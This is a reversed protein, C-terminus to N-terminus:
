VPCTFDQLLRPRAQVLMLLVSSLMMTSQHNNIPSTHARFIARATGTSDSQGQQEWKLLLADKKAENENVIIKGMEAARQEIACLTLTNYLILLTLTYYLVYTGAATPPRHQHQRDKDVSPVRHDVAATQPRHVVLCSDGKFLYSSSHVGRRRSRQQDSGVM